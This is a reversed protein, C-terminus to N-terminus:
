ANSHVVKQLIEEIFKEKTIQKKEELSKALGL